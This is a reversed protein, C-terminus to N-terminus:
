LSKLRREIVDFGWDNGNEPTPDKTIDWPRGNKEEFALFWKKPIGRYTPVSLGWQYCDGRTAVQGRHEIKFDGLKNSVVIDGRKVSSCISDTNCYISDENLLSKMRKNCREVVCARIFPNILQLYGISENIVNKAKLRVDKTKGEYKLGFWKDVFKKYPSEMAPFVFNAWGGPLVLRLRKGWSLSPVEGDVLFGLEGDGVFGDRRPPKSTDPIPQELAWGYAGNVDYCVADVRQGEFAKNTWVIPSSSLVDFNPKGDLMKACIWDEMKPAKYYQAMIAYAQKGPIVGGENPRGDLYCWLVHAKGGRFFAMFFQTMTERLFVKWGFQEGKYPERTWIFTYGLDSLTDLTKNIKEPTIQTHKLRSVVPWLTGM